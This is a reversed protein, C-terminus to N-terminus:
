LGGRLLPGPWPFESWAQVNLSNRAGVSGTETEKEEQEEEDGEHEGAHLVLAKQLRFLQQTRMDLADELLQLLSSQLTPAAYRAYITVSFARRARLRRKSPKRHRPLQRRARSAM